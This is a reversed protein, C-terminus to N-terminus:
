LRAGEVMQAGGQVLKKLALAYEARGNVLFRFMGDRGNFGTANTMLTPNYPPNALSLTKVNALITATYAITALAHPMGGFQRQYDAMIAARGAPDVAPYIAGALQTSAMIAPDGEWDASGVLQVTGPAVGAQALLLSFNPASARDPIFITDIMGNRIHPLAQSVIQQAEAPSAFTYVAQPAFGAAAAQQRFAAQQAQGFDGAPFIGAIGRRGQTKVWNLSRKMEMDPLVSLLYVSPGAASPNNSFGILPIGASRAVAGAATVQDARLPGLILKAGESAAASAAATAGGVTAGTDRLTITINEAINPNAEIFQIALRSANALSQGVSALGPDGSLPLLLSVQVPGRGFRQTASSPLIPTASQNPITQASNFSVPAGFDLVRSGLQIPSCAALALLALGFGAKGLIRM